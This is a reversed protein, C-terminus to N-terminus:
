ILSGEMDKNSIKLDFNNISSSLDIKPDNWIICGESERDYYKTTKYAFHVIESLALFAHGFGEPIWLQYGNEESLEVKIWKLYTPSDPRLDVAFDLVKGYTVRVLKGQEHPKKQFHIGRFVGKKSESFNDQVFDVNRGVIEDFEKKNYSEQFFGREDQYKEPMFLILGDLDLKKYEM